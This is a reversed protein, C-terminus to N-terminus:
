CGNIRVGREALFKIPNTWQGNKLVGIHLHPGTSDGTSGVRAIDSSPGVMQGPKVLIRSAHAYLTEWGGGHSVRVMYGYGSNWGAETVKGAGVSRIPTGYPVALDVGYHMTGWRYQYCSTVEYRVTLPAVWQPDVPPRKARAPKGVDLTRDIDPNPTFFLAIPPEPEPPEMNVMLAGALSFVMSIYYSRSRRGKRADSM